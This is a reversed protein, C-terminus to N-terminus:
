KSRRYRRRGACGPPRYPPTNESLLYDNRIVQQEDNREKQGDKLKKMEVKKGSCSPIYVLSPEFYEIASNQEMM